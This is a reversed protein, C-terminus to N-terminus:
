PLQLTVSITGPFVATDSIAKEEHQKGRKVLVFPAEKEPLPEGDRYLALIVLDNGHIARSDLVLTEGATSEVAIRYGTLALDAQYSLIASEQKHPAFLSDDSFALLRHLPVGEYVLISGNSDVPVRAAHCSVCSQLTQRDVDVDMKGRMALSWAEPAIGNITITRVGAVSVHGTVMPTQPGVKITRVLGEAAPIPLGDRTLALIWTGERQDLVDKGEFTMRYGDEAEFTVSSSKQLGAKDTLLGPLSMGSWIGIVSSGASTTFGGPGKACISLRSLDRLTLSLKGKETELVLRRSALTSDRMADGLIGTCSMSVLEHQSNAARETEMDEVHNGLDAASDHMFMLSCLVALAPASRNLAGSIRLKGV